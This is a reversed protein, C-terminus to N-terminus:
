SLGWAYLGLSVVTAAGLTLVGRRFRRAEVELLKDNVSWSEYLDQMLVGEGQTFARLPAAVLGTPVVFLPLPYWWWAIAGSDTARLVLLAVVVALGAGVVGVAKVDLTGAADLQAAIQDRLLEVMSTYLHVLPGPEEGESM